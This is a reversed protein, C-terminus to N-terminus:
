LKASLNRCYNIIGLRYSRLRLRSLTVCQIKSLWNNCTPIYRRYQSDPFRVCTSLKCEIETGYLCQMHVHFSPRERSTIGTKSIIKMKKVPLNKSISRSRSRSDYDM